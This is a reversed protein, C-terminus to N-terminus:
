RRLDRRDRVHRRCHHHGSSPSAAPTDQTTAVSFTGAAYAAPAPNTIGLIRVSMSTSAAVSCPVGGGLTITVTTGVTAASAINCGGFGTVPVATPSAPIGTFAPDFVITVTDGSALVGTAGRGFGITYSAVAGTTLPTGAFTVGTPPAAYTSSPPTGAALAAIVSVFAAIALNRLVPRNWRNPSGSSM